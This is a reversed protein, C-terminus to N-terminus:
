TSSSGSSPEKRRWSLACWSPNPSTLGIMSPWPQMTVSSRFSLQNRNLSPMAVAQSRYLACWPSSPEHNAARRLSIPLRMRPLVQRGRSLSTESTSRRFHGSAKGARLGCVLDGGALRQGFSGRSLVCGEGDCWMSLSSAKACTFSRPPQAISCPAYLESPLARLLQEPDSHM